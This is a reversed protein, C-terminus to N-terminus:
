GGGGGGGGGGDVDFFTSLKSLVHMYQIVCVYMYWQWEGGGGGWLWLSGVFGSDCRPRADHVALIYFGVVGGGVGLFLVCRLLAWLWM